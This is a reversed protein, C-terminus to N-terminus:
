NDQCHVHMANNPLIPYTANNELFLEIAHGDEILELEGILTLKYCRSYDSWWDDSGDTVPHALTAFDTPVGIGGALKCGQSNTLDNTINYPSTGKAAAIIINNAQLAQSVIFTSLMSKLTTVSANLAVDKEPIFAGGEVFARFSKYEYITANLANALNDQLIEM